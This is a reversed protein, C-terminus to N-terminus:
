KLVEFMDIILEPKENSYDIKVRIRVHDGEGILGAKFKTYHYDGTMKLDIISVHEWSFDLWDSEKTLVTFSVGAAYWFKENWDTLIGDIDLYDGHHTKLFEEKKEDKELSDKEMHALASYSECNDMTLVPIPKNIYICLKLYTELKESKEFQRYETFWSDSSIDEVNVSTIITANEDINGYSFFTSEEVKIDTFGLSELHETLEDLSWDGNSYEESSYPIEVTKTCGACLILLGLAALIALMKNCM